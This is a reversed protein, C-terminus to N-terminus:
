GCEKGGNWTADGVSSMVANANRWVRAHNIRHVDRVHSDILSQVEDETNGYWLEPLFQGMGATTCLLCSGYIPAALFEPEEPLQGNKM